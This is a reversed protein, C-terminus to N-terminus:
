ALVADASCGWPDLRANKGGTGRWLREERMCGGRMAMMPAPIAPEAQAARRAALWCNLQVMKSLDRPRPPRQAVRRSLAPWRMSWPAWNKVMRSGANEVAACSAQPSSRAKRVAGTVSGLPEGTGESLRQYWRRPLLRSARARAGSASTRVAVSIMFQWGSPSPHDSLPSNKSATTEVAGSGCVHFSKWSGPVGGLPM